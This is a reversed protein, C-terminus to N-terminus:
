WGRFTTLFVGSKRHDLSSCHKCVERGFAGITKMRNEVLIRNNKAVARLSTCSAIIKPKVCPDRALM